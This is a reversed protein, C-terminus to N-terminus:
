GLGPPDGRLVWQSPPQTAWLATRSMNSFLFIEQRQRSNFEVDDLGCIIM